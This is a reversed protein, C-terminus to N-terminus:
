VKYCGAMERKLYPVVLCTKQDYSLPYNEVGQFILQLTSFDVIQNFHVSGQYIEPLFSFVEELSFKIVKLKCSLNQIKSDKLNNQVMFNLIFYGMIYIKIM